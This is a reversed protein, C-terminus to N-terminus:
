SDDSSSSTRESDGPTAPMRYEEALWKGLDQMKCRSSCFPFFENESLMKVPERCTPCKPQTAM